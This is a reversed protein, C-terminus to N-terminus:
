DSPPVPGPRGSKLAILLGAVALLGGALALISWRYGEAVTSIAMAIVPILVSSYAARAPGIRRIIGYYLWFALSSAILGLYLLGLWYGLRAEIVPPGATAWAVAADITAGYLMAWGLMPAIARAKMAPTLQMVNSISAALVALLTFGLGALIAGTPVASLRVEQVFLLAVGAMAVASGVAFRASVRQGFFAWALAANPVVLLAFVVAALGSTIYQEALYVLNYNLVFQLVGLLVAFGHGARGIGLGAGTVRAIAIMAAGAILFRYSVSWVPPVAGLQDKIVIWTSGWILTVLLFPLLIKPDRFGGGAESM